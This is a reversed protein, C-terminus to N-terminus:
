IIKGDLLVLQVHMIYLFTFNVCVDSLTGASHLVVFALCTVAVTCVDIHGLVRSCSRSSLLM